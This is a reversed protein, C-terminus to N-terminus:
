QLRETFNVSTTYIRKGDIRYVTLPDGNLVLTVGVEILLGRQERAKRERLWRNALRHYYFSLGAAVFWIALAFISVATTM